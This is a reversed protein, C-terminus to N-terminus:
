KELQLPQREVVYIQGSVDNEAASAAGARHPDVPIKERTDDGRM